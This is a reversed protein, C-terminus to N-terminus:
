SDVVIVKSVKKKDQNESSTIKNQKRKRLAEADYCFRNSTISASLSFVVFDVWLASEAM